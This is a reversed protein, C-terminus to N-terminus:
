ETQLNRYNGSVNNGTCVCVSLHMRLRHVSEQKMERSIDYNLRKFRKQLTGNADLLQLQFIGNILPFIMNIGCMELTM